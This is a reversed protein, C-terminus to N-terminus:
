TPEKRPGAGPNPPSDQAALQSRADDREVEMRALDEHARDLRAADRLYNDRFQNRQRETEALDARVMALDARAEELRRRLEVCADREINWLIRHHQRTRILEARLREIEERGNALAIDRRKVHDVLQRAEPVKVGLEAWLMSDPLAAHSRVVAVIDRDSM